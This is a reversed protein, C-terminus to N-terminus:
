LQPLDLKKALARKQEVTLYPDAEFSEELVAVQSDSLKAKSRSVHANNESWWDNVQSAIHQMGRVSMDCREFRSLLYLSIGIQTAM